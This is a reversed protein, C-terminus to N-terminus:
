LEYKSPGDPEHDIPGDIREGSHGEISVTEQMVWTAMVTFSM